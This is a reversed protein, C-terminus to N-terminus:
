FPRCFRLGFLNSLSAVTAGHARLLWARQSETCKSTGVTDPTRASSRAQACCSVNTLENLYYTREREEDYLSIWAEEEPRQSTRQKTKADIYFENGDDALM